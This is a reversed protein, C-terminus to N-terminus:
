LVVYGAKEVWSSILNFLNNTDKLVLARGCIEKTHKIKAAAYLNELGVNYTNSLAENIKYSSFSPKYKAMLFASLGFDYLGIKSQLLSIEGQYKKFISLVNLKKKVEAHHSIENPKVRVIEALRNVIEEYKIESLDVHNACFRGKMDKNLALNIISNCLGNTTTANSFATRDKLLVPENNILKQILATVMKSGQGFIHGSRVLFLNTGNKKYNQWAEKEVVLKIRGYLSNPKVRNPLPASDYKYKIIPEGYIGVSGIIILNKVGNDQCTKMLNSGHQMSSKILQSPIGSIQYSLDICADCGKIIENLDDGISMTHLSVVNEYKKKLYELKTINRGAIKLFIDPHQKSILEILNFGLYSTAGIICVKM